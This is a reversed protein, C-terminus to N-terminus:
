PRRPTGPIVAKKGFYRSICRNPWERGDASLRNNFLLLPQTEVQRVYVVPGPDAGITLLQARTERRFAPGQPLQWFAVLLAPSLVLLAVGATRLRRLAPAASVDGSLWRGLHRRCVGLALVAAYSLALISLLFLANQARAPLPRGRAYYGAVFSVWCAGALTLFCFGFLTRARRSTPTLAPDAAVTVALLVFWGAVGPRPLQLALFGPVWLSGWFLAGVLDGSGSLTAERLLNGPAAYVIVTGALAATILMVHQATAIREFGLHRRAALSLGLMLVMIPGALENCLSALFSAALFFSVQRRSMWTHEALARYLLAFLPLVVFAPLTYTFAGPMWFLMHRTTPANAALAIFFALAFFLRAPNTRIPLLRPILWYCLLAFGLLFAAVFCEYVAFLDVGLASAVISPLPILASAVLRGSWHQYHRWIGAVGDQLAIAGYCFDDTQPAAFLASAMLPALAALLVAVWPWGFGSLPSMDRMISTSEAAEM